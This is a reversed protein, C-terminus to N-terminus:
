LIHLQSSHHSSVSTQLSRLSFKFLVPTSAMWEQARLFIRDKPGSRKQIFSPSLAATKSVNLAISRKLSHTQQYKHLISIISTFPDIGKHTESSM